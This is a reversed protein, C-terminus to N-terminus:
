STIFEFPENYSKKARMASPRSRFLAIPIPVNRVSFHKL